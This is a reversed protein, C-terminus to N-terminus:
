ADQNNAAHDQEDRRKMAASLQDLLRDLQPELVAMAAYDKYDEAQRLRASVERCQRDISEVTVPKM